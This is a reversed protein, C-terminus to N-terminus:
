YPRRSSKIEALTKKLEEKKVYKKETVNFDDRGLYRSGDGVEIRYDVLEELKELIPLTEPRIFSISNEGWISGYKELFDIVPGYDVTVKVNDAEAQMQDIIEWNLDVLSALNIQTLYKSDKTNLEAM